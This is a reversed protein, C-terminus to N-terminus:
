LPSKKAKGPTRPYKNSTKAIKQIIILKHQRESYPVEIKEIRVKEARLEKLANQAEKIENDAGPGKYSIFYSDKKVFPICYEILIRLPAVARSVVIDFQERYEAKRGFEEARGHIIEVQELQLVEVVKKLFETRKKLSDLLVLKIEPMMIKLPLGPFGAGTGVDIIKQNGKILGLKLPSISDMFHQIVIEEPDTIATLNMKENWELLLKMFDNFKELKDEEANMGWKEMASRLKIIEPNM